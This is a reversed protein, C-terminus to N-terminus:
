SPRDRAPVEAGAAFAPREELLAIFEALVMATAGWVRAGGIDFYPIDVERGTSLTRREWAIADPRLLRPIPVEVVRAVEQPAPVFAPRRAAYGVVPHLLHESVTVPLPTLHGLIEVEDAPLGLEEHAERLAAAIVPEDARDLRGGPLSVQGAHHRLSAHRVTLPIWWERAHPYVLLLAAAPRLVADADPWQRPRPALRVQAERGPLPGALRRRLDDPLDVNVTHTLHRRDDV